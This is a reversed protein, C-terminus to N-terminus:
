WVARKQWLGNCCLSKPCLGVISAPTPNSGFRSETSLFSMMAMSYEEAM